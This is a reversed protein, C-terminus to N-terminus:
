RIIRAADDQRRKKRIYLLTGINLCGLCLHAKDLVYGHQGCRICIGDPFLRLLLNPLKM